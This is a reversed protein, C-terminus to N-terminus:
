GMNRDRKIIGSDGFIICPYRRGSLFNLSTKCENLGWDSSSSIQPNNKEGNLKSVAVHTLFLITNGLDINKVFLFKRETKWPIVVADTWLNMLTTEIQSFCFSIQEFGRCECFPFSGEPAVLKWHFRSDAMSRSLLTPGNFHQCAL